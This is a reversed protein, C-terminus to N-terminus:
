APEDADEIEVGGVDVEGDLRTVGGIIRLDNVQRVANGKNHACRVAWKGSGGTRRGPEKEAEGNGIGSGGHQELKVIHGAVAIEHELAFHRGAHRRVEVAAEADAGSRFLDDKAAAGVEGIQAVIPVDANVVVLRIIKCISD